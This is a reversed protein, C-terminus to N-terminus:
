ADQEGNGPLDVLCRSRASEFMATIVRANTAALDLGYRPRRGTRVCESLHAVELEYPDTFPFSQASPEVGGLFVEEGYRHHLLRTFPERRMGTGPLSLWGDTGVVEVQSYPNPYDFSVHM